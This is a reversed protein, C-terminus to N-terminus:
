RRKGKPAPRTGGVVHVIAWGLVAIGLAGALLIWVMATLSAVLLPGFYVAGATAGAGIGTGLALRQVTRDPAAQHIHITQPGQQRQAMEAQVTALLAAYDESQRAALVADAAAKEIESM